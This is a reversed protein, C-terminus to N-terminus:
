INSLLKDLKKMNLQINKNNNLSKIEEDSFSEIELDIFNNTRFNVERTNITQKM